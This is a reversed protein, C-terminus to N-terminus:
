IFQGNNVIFEDNELRFLPISTWSLGEGEKNFVTLFLMTNEKEEESYNNAM